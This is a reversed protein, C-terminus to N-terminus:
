WIFLKQGQGSGMQPWLILIFYIFTAMIKIETREPRKYESSLSNKELPPKSLLSAIVSRFIDKRVKNMCSQAINYRLLALNKSFSAELPWFAVIASSFSERVFALSSFGDLDRDLLLSLLNESM